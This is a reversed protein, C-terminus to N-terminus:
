HSCGCGGSGCGGSPKPPVVLGDAGVPQVEVVALGAAAALLALRTTEAGRGGLVYLLLKQRDLTWELDILELQLKWDAMRSQWESFAAQAESKLRRSRALDEDSAVHLVKQTDLENRDLNTPHDAASDTAPAGARRVSELVTGLEMGRLTQLVVPTGREPVKETACSFRGIEPIAGYRVLLECTM